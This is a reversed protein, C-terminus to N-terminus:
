IGGGIPLKSPWCAPTFYSFILAMDISLYCPCCSSRVIMGNSEVHGSQAQKRGMLSLIDVALQWQHGKECASITAAYSIASSEAEDTHTEQLSKEPSNQCICAM